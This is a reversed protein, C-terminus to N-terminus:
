SIKAEGMEKLMALRMYPGTWRPKITKLEYLKEAFCPESHSSRWTKLFEERYEEWLRKYTLEHETLWPFGLLIYNANDSPPLGIAFFDFLEKKWNLRKTQKKKKPM